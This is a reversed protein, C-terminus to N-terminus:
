ELVHHNQRDGFFQQIGADIQLVHGRGNSEQCLTRDLLQFADGDHTVTLFHM